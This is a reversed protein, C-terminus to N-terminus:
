GDTKLSIFGSFNADHGLSCLYAPLLRGATSVEDTHPCNRVELHDAPRLIAAPHAIIKKSIPEM